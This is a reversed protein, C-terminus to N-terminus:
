GGDGGSVQMSVQALAPPHQRGRVMGEFGARREVLVKGRIDCTIGRRLTKLNDKHWPKSFLIHFKM